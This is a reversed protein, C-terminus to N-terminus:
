GMSPDSPGGKDGYRFNELASLIENKSFRLTNGGARIFAIRRLKVWRSVTGPEVRLLAAVEKRTLLVDPPVQPYGCNVIKPPM